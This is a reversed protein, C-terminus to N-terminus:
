RNKQSHQMKDFLMDLYEAELASSCEIGYKTLYIGSNLKARLKNITNSIVGIETTIKKFKDTEPNESAKKYEEFLSNLEGTLYLIYNKIEENNIEM